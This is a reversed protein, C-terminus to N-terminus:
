GEDTPRDAKLILMIYAAVQMRFRDYAEPVWMQRFGGNAGSGYDITNQYVQDLFEKAEIANPDNSREETLRQLTAIYRLDWLGVAASVWATSHVFQANMPDIPAIWEYDNGAYGSEMAGLCGEGGLRWLYIGTTARSPVPNLVFMATGQQKAKAFNNPFDECESSQFIVDCRGVAADFASQTYVLMGTKVRQLQRERIPDVISDLVTELQEMERSRSTLCVTVNPLDPHEQLYTEIQEFQRRVWLPQRYLVGPIDDHLLNESYAYWIPHEIGATRCLRLYDYLDSLDPIREVPPPCSAGVGDGNVGWARLHQLQKAYASEAGLSFEGDHWFGYVYPAPDVEFPLVELLIDIKTDPHNEASVSIIGEYSGGWAAPSIWIEIWFEEMRGAPIGLTPNPAILWGDNREHPLLDSKGTQSPLLWRISIGESGIVDYGELRPLQVTVRNLEELAYIQLAIPVLEGKVGYVTIPVGPGRVDGARPPDIFRDGGPRIVNRGAWQDHGALWSKQYVVCGALRHSEQVVDAWGGLEPPQIRPRDTNGSAYPSGTAFREAEFEIPSLPEGEALGASVWVLM